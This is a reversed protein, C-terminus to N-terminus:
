KSEDTHESIIKGDETIRLEHIGPGHSKKYSLDYVTKGNLTGVHVDRVSALGVRDRAVDKVKEPVNDYSTKQPNTLPRMKLDTAHQETTTTSQAFGPYSVGATAMAVLASVLLKRM